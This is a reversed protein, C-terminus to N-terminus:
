ESTLIAAVGCSASLSDGLGGFHLTELHEFCLRRLLFFWILCYLVPCQEDSLPMLLTVLTLTVALFM